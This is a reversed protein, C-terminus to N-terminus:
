KNKGCNQAPLGIADITVICGSVELWRLLEPIATIENSQSRVKVQGLVLHNTTAWASVMAIAKKGLPRTM